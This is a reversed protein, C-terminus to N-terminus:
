HIDIIQSSLYPRVRKLVRDRPSKNDLHAGHIDDDMGKFSGQKAIAPTKVEVTGICVNSGDPFELVCSLDVRTGVNTGTETDMRFEAETEPIGALLLVTRGLFGFANDLHHKLKAEVTFFNSPVTAKYEASLDAIPLKLQLIEKPISLPEKVDITLSKLDISSDATETADTQRDKDLRVRVSARKALGKTLDEFSSTFTPTATPATSSSPAAM